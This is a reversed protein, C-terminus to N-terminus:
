YSAEWPVSPCLMCLRWFAETPIDWCLMCPLLAKRVYCVRVCVWACVSVCSLLVQICQVVSVDVLFWAYVLSSVDGNHSLSIRTARQVCPSSGNLCEPFMFINVLSASDFDFNHKKSCLAPPLNIDLKPQKHSGETFSSSVSNTPMYHKPKSELRTMQFHQVIGSHLRSQFLQM